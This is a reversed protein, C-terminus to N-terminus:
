NEGGVFKVLTEIKAIEAMISEDSSKLKEQEQSIEIMLEEISKKLNEIEDEKNAIANVCETDILNKAGKLVDYRKVGDEIVEDSTLGFSGLISLVSARKTDTAMEKPLSSILEDVKFISRSLDSLGNQAYVDSILTESNVSEVAVNQASIEEEYPMNIDGVDVTEQPIEEIFAKSLNKLLGM